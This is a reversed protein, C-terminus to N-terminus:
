GAMDLRHITDVMQEFRRQFEQPDNPKSESAQLMLDVAEDFQKRADETNHRRYSKQGRQFIADAPKMLGDASTFPPLQPTETVPVPTSALFPNLQPPEDLTPPIAVAHPVSPLFAMQFRSQQTTTGCGAFFLVASTLSVFLLSQTKVTM